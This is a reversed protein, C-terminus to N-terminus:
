GVPQALAFAALARNVDDACRQPQAYVEAGLFRIVRWNLDQLARQQRADHIRQRRTNHYALGDVYVLLRQDPWAFDAETLVRGSPGDIRYQKTPEPVGAARMAELLRLEAPSDCGEARAREWEADFQHSGDAAIPAGPTLPLTAANQLFGITSRWDLVDGRWATRYTRLCRYCARECDHGDLDQLAAKAVRTFERTLLDLIGSGGVVRDIWLVEVPREKGDADRAMVVLPELDDEDLDYARIAGVVVAMALSWAWVKGDPGAAIAGPVHMRLIDARVPHGLAYDRAEGGCREPERHKLEAESYEPERPAAPFNNKKRKSKPAPSLKPADFSDGCRLCLRYPEPVTQGQKLRGHNIFLISEGHSLEFHLSDAESHGLTFSAREVDCQPHGLQEIRERKREEESLPDVDRQIARFAGADLYTVVQGGLAAGCGHRACHNAERRNAQGCADCVIFEGQKAGGDSALDPRFLALGTVQWRLGRAYVVQGPAYERQAQVRDARLPQSEFGLTLSGPDSPFAYGPIVGSEALIRPLYAQQDNDDGLRLNRALNQWRVRERQRFEDVADLEHMKFAALKIAEARKEITHQVLAATEDVRAGIWTPDIGAIGEFASGARRRAEPAAADITNRLAELAVADLEGEAEIFPAMNHAYELQATELAVSHVHRGIGERNKANFRPAPIAGAIMEEPHEFYYADHHRQLAFTTVIGMRSRRGTRGARQAYNAPNPPVNRMAVAELAGINVGLELTPTCALLNVAPPQLQFQREIKDRQEGPVAASHEEPILRVSGSATLLEREADEVTLSPILVGDCAPKPCRTAEGPDGLRRQCVTCTHDTTTRVVEMIGLPVSYGHRRKNRRGISVARLYNRKVLWRFLDHALDLRDEKSLEKLDALLERLPGGRLRSYSVRTVWERTAEGKENPEVFAVPKGTNRSVKLDYLATLSGPDRDSGAYLRERLPDEHEGVDDLHAGGAFRLADLFFPVREALKRADVSYRRALEIFTESSLDEDLGAYHVRALGFRELSDRRNANFVFERLLQGLAKRRNRKKGEATKEPRLVGIAELRPVLREALGAFDSPGDYAEIARLIERKAGIETESGRIYRAQHSADQRSDCFVLLRRDREPLAEMLTRAIWTLAPSNGLKVPRLQAGRTYRSLCVPCTNANGFRVYVQHLDVRPEACHTWEPEPSVSGCNDCLYHLPNKDKIREFSEDIDGSTAEDDDITEALAPNGDAEDDGDIGFTAEALERELDSADLRFYYHNRAEDDPPQPGVLFDHRCANCMVLPLMRSECALCRARETASLEGCESSACRYFQPMGRVFRHVRPLLQPGDSPLAPGILLAAQVETAVDDNPIESREPRTKLEAVIDSLPMPRTVIERLVAPLASRAFADAGDTGAAAGCLRRGLEAVATADTPDFNTLEDPDLRPAPLLHQRADDPLEIPQEGLVNEVDLPAGTLQEFFLAISRRPDDNREIGRQLTASTGVFVIEPEIASTAALAIRLRRLLAAVDSGLAGRYTHMEDLVIYRVSHHGFIKRGDGRLLLYELMQYNTLFLDPPDTEFEGRFVREEAPAEVPREKQNGRDTTGTYVGFSVGLGGCLERLRKNQDIALANMPYLIIAKPGPDTRRAYADDVIPLLFAETKGSGTGTAVVTSTGHRIRRYAESQHRYPPYGGFARQSFREAVAPAVGLEELSAGAAFPAALSVFPERVLLREDELARDFVLRLNADAARFQSRLYAKYRSEIQRSIVFPNM